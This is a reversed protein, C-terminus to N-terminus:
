LSSSFTFIPKESHLAMYPRFKYASVLTGSIWGRLHLCYTERLPQYRSVLGYPTLVWFVLTTMYGNGAVWTWMNHDTLLGRWQLVVRSMSREPHFKHHKLKGIFL